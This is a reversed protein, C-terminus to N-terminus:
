WRMATASVVPKLRSAYKGADLNQFRVSSSKSIEELSALRLDIGAQTKMAGIGASLEALQAATPGHNNNNVPAAGAGAAPESNNGPEDTKVRPAALRSNTRINKEPTRTSKKVKPKVM